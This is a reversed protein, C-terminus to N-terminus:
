DDSGASSISDSDSDAATRDPKVDKAPRDQPADAEATERDDADDRNKTLPRTGDKTDSEAKTDSEPAEDPAATDESDPDTVTEPDSPETETPETETPETEDSPVSTQDAAELKDAGVDIATAPDASPTEADVSDAPLVSGLPGLVDRLVQPIDLDVAATTQVAADAAAVPFPPWPPLPPLPPLWSLFYDIVLNVENIAVNILSAVGTYAVAGIGNAWVQLNLPDNLVPNILDFVVSDTFDIVPPYIAYIQNTILGGGPLFQLVYPALELAIYDTWEVIGAYFWTVFDSATNQVTIDPAALPLDLEAAVERIDARAALFDRPTLPAVAAALHVPATVQAVQQAPAVRVPAAAIAAVALTSVGSILLSRMSIGM